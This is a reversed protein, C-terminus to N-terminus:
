ISILKSFIKYLYKIYEFVEDQNIHKDLKEILEIEDTKPKRGAGERKGGHKAM